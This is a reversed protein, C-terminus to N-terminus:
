SVKESLRDLKNEIRKLTTDLNKEHEAQVEIHTNLDSRASYGAWCSGGIAAVMAVVATILITTTAKIPKRNSKCEETTIYVM